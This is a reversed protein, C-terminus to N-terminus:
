KRTKLQEYYAALQPLSMATVAPLIDQWGLPGDRQTVLQKIKMAYDVYSM